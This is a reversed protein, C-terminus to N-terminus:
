RILTKKETENPRYTVKAIVIMSTTYGVKAKKNKGTQKGGKTAAGKTFKHNKV